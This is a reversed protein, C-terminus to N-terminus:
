CSRPEFRRKRTAAYSRRWGQFPIPCSAVALERCSVVGWSLGVSAFILRSLLTALLLLILDIWFALTATMKVFAPDGM